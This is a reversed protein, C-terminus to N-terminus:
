ANILGAGFSCATRIRGRNAPTFLKCNKCKLLAFGSKDSVFILIRRSHMIVSKIIEIKSIPGTGM